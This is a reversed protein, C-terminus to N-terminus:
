GGAHIFDETMITVDGRKTPLEGQAQHEEPLEFLPEKLYAPLFKRKLHTCLRFRPEKSSLLETSEWGDVGWYLLSDSDELTIRVTFFQSRDYQEKQKFADLYQFLDTHRLQPKLVGTRKLLKLEFVEAREFGSQSVTAAFLLLCHKLPIPSDHSTPDSPLMPLTADSPLM